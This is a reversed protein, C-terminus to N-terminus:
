TAIVTDLDDEILLHIAPSTCGVRRARLGLQDASEEGSCYLAPSEGSGCCQAVQLALTSKGIGPDGGLLVVSGPVLGGGLVRDVEALGSGSRDPPHATVVELAVTRGALAVSAAHTRPVPGGNEVLSNWEGCGPCRGAWKAFGVGCSSCVLQPRSALRATAATM